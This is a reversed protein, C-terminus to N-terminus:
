NETPATKPRRMAGKPLDDWQQLLKSLAAKSEPLPCNGIFSAYGTPDMCFLGVLCGPFTEALVELLNALLERTRSDEVLPLREESM